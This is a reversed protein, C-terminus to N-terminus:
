HATRKKTKISINERSEGSNKNQLLESALFYLTLIMLPLFATYNTFLSVAVIFIYFFTNTSSIFIKNLSTIFSGAGKRWQKYDIVLTEMSFQNEVYWFFSKKFVRVTLLSILTYHNIFPILVFGLYYFIPYSSLVILSQSDCPRILSFRKDERLHQFPGLNTVGAM